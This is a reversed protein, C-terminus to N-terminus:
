VEAMVECFLDEYRTVITRADFDRARVKGLESLRRRLAEDRAVRDLAERLAEVDDVPVVIGYRGNQLIEKPGFDCSTAVVPTGAALAEVVISAFGEWRSALVLADARALYAWPNDRFGCFITSKDAGLTAALRRLNREEEGEGLLLLKHTLACESRSFARVLVDLGKQRTLRGISVFYRPPLGDPPLTAGSRVQELDVCNHVTRVRSPDLHLQRTLEAGMEHCISLLRDASRYCRKVLTTIAAAMAPRGMLEDRIVALANNGERAIWRVKKRGYLSVALWTCLNMGKTFSVIVHPRFRRMLWFANFPALIYAPVRWLGYNAPNGLDFNLWESRLPAVDLRRVDVSSLYPGAMRLLGIRVDFHAPDAHNLLHLAMREAGGGQLSPLLLLVRRRESRTLPRRTSM